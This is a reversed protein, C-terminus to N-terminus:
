FIIPKGLKRRIVQFQGIHMTVHSPLVVLLDACTPMWSRFKEPTSKDLDSASLTNAWAITANRAKEFLSLLQEKTAFNGFKDPEDNKTTDKAFLESFGVPLAIAGKPDIAGVMHTEANILHGLQWAAHNAGPCPRVFLDADNFDKLTDKLFTLNGTLGKILFHKPDM